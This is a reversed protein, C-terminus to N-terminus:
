FYLKLGLQLNRPDRTETVVGLQGRTGQTVAQGPNPVNLGTNVTNWQTHNFVNFMEARFQLRFREGFQFNKFLSADWNNIGPARIISNATNGLSGDAPRAFLLPNFYQPLTGLAGGTEPTTGIQRPDGGLYDARVGGGLTGPNGNSTVTLPFGSWFRTIGSLQWGDLVAKVFGNSSIQSGWRPMEWIYDITVVHTRDFTLPAYNRRRDLFYGIDQTDNPTTGMAKSWTYNVNATLGQAFRRSGRVQLAHYNSNAGFDTHLINTYGRFPRVANAVNNVSALFGPQLTTGLPLQNIDRQDMLYASGNGVYAADIVLSGPLQRQIGLSWSYITPTKGFQNWSRLSQPFRTGGELLAPSINDVRGAFVSPNLALPPNGLGDFNLNNQRIREWFIGGGGRIATKGDGFPDYAFGFRPSWQNWRNQTFGLNYGPESELIIGNIFDGTGPVMSGQRLGPRLDLEPAQSASWRDRDFYNMLFPPRTYTPGLYAWRVGYDLTLRRNVKWSDQAYLEYGKFRFAGFFVGNSQNISTYSGVLMNGYTQGTDFSNELSPNFNFNLSDTWAPQQGNDNQNWFGGFKITHSGKQWTLNDTFAYTRADSRWQSAFGGYNCNAVGCNFRPFRNNLNSNPYLETFTFGLATRDYQSQPTGPVVDVLQELANYTFIAENTVTPSIITILNYSYSRGPKQRFMPYIPDPLTTFIGRQLNEDQMDNVYRFFFNWNSNIAYDFRGVFQNKNFRYTDQYPVRVTEPNAALVQGGDRPYFGIVNLFGQTNRAWESRPVTNNPYPIGGTIQGAPNRTLTGPQFVTGVRFQPATVIPQDRLLRRMDGQLLDPHALDIFNGGQPRSARTGEYNFFFFMKRNSATSLGPVIVPGSVNGGFQNFRLPAVKGTTDFPLRADFANNRIFHYLTGHIDKGGAKTSASLQIGPNRGFEANFTSTQVRFEGVADMSLQTYQGDNAGVDTNISGDLFFNNASGRMGNVNFNDTNNFALRFSSRDNSVVGPLTLMLSQFDRGNLALETVQKRDITFGKNSSSTEVLPVEGQVTIAESTQGIDLQVNGFDLVTTPDVPIRQREVPRFGTAEFKLTYTGRQLAPILFSGDNGSTLERVLTGKAEDTISIKANPVGAGQPDVLVGRITSNQAYTALAIGAIAFVRLSGM